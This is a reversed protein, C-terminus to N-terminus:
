AAKQLAMKNVDQVAIKNLKEDSQKEEALSQGLLKAAEPQGMSNAMEILTGYSAIEYHEIKQNSSIIAADRVTDDKVEEMMERGEEILGEMAECRKARKGLDMMEFVKELREVQERTEELHTQLADRLKSNSVAKAMRPLAKVLQKEAHYIDRLEQTFLDQMSSVAM